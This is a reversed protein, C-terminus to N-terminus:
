HFKYKLLYNNLGIQSKAPLVSTYKLFIGIHPFLRSSLTSLVKNKMGVKNKM